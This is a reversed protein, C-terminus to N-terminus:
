KKGKAKVEPKKKDEETQFIPISQGESILVYAKKFDSNRGKISRRGRVQTNKKKGKVRIMNVKEVTVGFQTEVASAVTHRNVNLPVIFVYRNEKEAFNFAKESLLPQLAIAKFIDAM